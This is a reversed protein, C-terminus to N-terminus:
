DHPESRGEDPSLYVDRGDARGGEESIAKYWASVAGALRHIGDFARLTYSASEALSFGARRLRSNEEVLFNVQDALIYDQNFEKMLTEVHEPDFVFDAGVRDPSVEMEVGELTVEKEDTRIRILM